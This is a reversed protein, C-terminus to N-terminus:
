RVLQLMHTADRWGSHTIVILMKGLGLIREEIRAALARDLHETPEDLILVEARSLLARAVNLRKAEGGSLIRGFEGVITDLGFESESVLTNLEVIALALHIQEDTSEPAGIKMNERITTNFIHSIQIAASVHASLNSVTQISKGNIKISGTHPLLGLLGMALTSKGSGSRGRIALSQGAELSFTVPCMFPDDQNWLVQVGQVELTTVLDALPLQQVPEVAITSELKAIELKALLLKGAAFLNPYWATIAEFMVLPLFVLMTVQVAPMQGISAFHQAILALGVLTIGLIAVFFFQFKRLASVLSKEHSYIAQEMVSTAELRQELYGYLQAEVVGHAAQEILQAYLNESDEVKQALAECDLKSWRPIVILLCLVSPITFYLSQPQIWYGVLVGVSLSIVAAVHPLTIRLEYEQAREVDDVVRKVLKGSSQDSVLAFPRSTIQEFLRVRLGTLRDFVSKHSTTREFYRAVSRAIGFFRVMVIAVSLTLIPPQFSAMTILWASTITLGAGFIYASASLIYPLVRKM